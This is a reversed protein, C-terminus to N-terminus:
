PHRVYIAIFFIQELLTITFLKQDFEDIIFRM